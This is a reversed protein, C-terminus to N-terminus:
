ERPHSYSMYEDNYLATRLQDTLQAIQMRTCEIDANSQPGPQTVGNYSFLGAWGLENCARASRLSELFYRRDQEKATVLARTGFRSEAFAFLGLGAIIFAIGWNMTGSLLAVAGVALVIAGFGGVAMAIFILWAAKAQLRKQSESTRLRDLQQSFHYYYFISNKSEPYYGHLSKLYFILTEIQQANLTEIGPLVPEVIRYLKEDEKVYSLYESVM